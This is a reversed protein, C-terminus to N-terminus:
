TTFCLKKGTKTYIKMTSFNSTKNFAVVVQKLLYINNNNKKELSKSTILSSQFRKWKWYFNKNNVSNNLCPSSSYSVLRGTVSDCHFLLLSPRILLM